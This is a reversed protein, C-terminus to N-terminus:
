KLDCLISCLETVTAWIFEISQPDNLDVQQRQPIRTLKQDLCHELFMLTTWEHWTIAITEAHDVSKIKLGCWRERGRPLPPQIQSWQGTVVPGSVISGSCFPAAATGVTPAYGGITLTLPRYRFTSKLETALERCVVYFPHTKHQTPLGLVEVRAGRCREKRFRERFYRDLQTETMWRGATTGLEAISM